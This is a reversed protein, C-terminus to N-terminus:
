RKGKCTCTTNGNLTTTYSALAGNANCCGNCSSRSVSSCQATARSNTKGCGLLTVGLVLITVLALKNM